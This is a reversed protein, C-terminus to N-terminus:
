EDGGLEGYLAPVRSLIGTIYTHLAKAHSQLILFYRILQNIRNM